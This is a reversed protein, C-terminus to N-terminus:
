KSRDRASLATAADVMAQMMIVRTMGIAEDWAAELKASWEDGFFEELAELLATGFVEMYEPQFLDRIRGRSINVILQELHDPNDFQELLATLVNDFLSSLAQRDVETLTRDLCPHRQALTKTFLEHLRPRDARIKKSSAEILEIDLSM